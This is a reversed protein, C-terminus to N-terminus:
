KTEEQITVVCDLRVAPVESGQSEYDDRDADAVFDGWEGVENSDNVVYTGMVVESCPLVEMSDVTVGVVVIREPDLEQLIDILEGVKM